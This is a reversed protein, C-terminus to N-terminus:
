IQIFDHMMSKNSQLSLVEFKIISPPRLFPLNIKAECIIVGIEADILM